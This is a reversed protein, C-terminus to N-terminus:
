YCYLIHSQCTHKGASILQVHKLNIFSQMGVKIFCINLIFYLLHIQLIHSDVKYKKLM